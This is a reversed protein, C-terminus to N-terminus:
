QFTEPSAKVWFECRKILGKGTVFPRVVPEDGDTKNFMMETFGHDWSNWNPTIVTVDNPNLSMAISLFSQQWAKLFEPNVFTPPIAFTTFDYSLDLAHTGPPIGLEAKWGNRGFTSVAALAPCVFISDGMVASAEEPVSTLGMNSYMETAQQVRKKSLRPFLETIYRSLTFNNATLVDPTIFLSGEDSNTTVLLAEGNVRGRQLTVMPRETIFTGDVVPVFTYTGMFNAFGIQTDAELLSSVDASRLCELSDQAHGCNVVSVVQSYVREAIPDDYNYQFPLFPSNMLVARFLPPQTDGGHAILHQLMAGAGASQGWITVKSPDGGFSSIHEQVWQLAFNQDLLGANLAGGYKVAAGPLFGFVGLRYQISVAVLGYDSGKVFDQVPYLSTNGADYGGGHMYVIVPLLPDEDRKNSPAHVDLFLCDEDSLGDTDRQVLLRDGTHYDSFPTKQKHRRTRRYPNRTARGASGTISAQFCQNPYATANQLASMSAPPHPAGWRLSGTPPAAYRVGLFSTVGDVLQLNSQYTAYGLDVQKMTDQNQSIALLLIATSLM